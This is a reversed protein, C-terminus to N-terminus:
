HKKYKYIFYMVLFWITELGIFYMYIRFLKLTKQADMLAFTLIINTMGLVLHLLSILLEILTFRPVPQKKLGFVKRIWRAPTVYYKPFFPSNLGFTKITGLAMNRDRICAIWPTIIWLLICELVMQDSMAM